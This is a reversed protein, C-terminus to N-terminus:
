ETLMAEWLRISMREGPLYDTVYPKAEREILWRKFKGGYGAWPYKLGLERMCKVLYDHTHESDETLWKAVALTMVTDDTFRSDPTLLHFNYDKTNNFEYVSGVTSKLLKCILRWLPLTIRSVRCLGHCLWGFILSVRYFAM